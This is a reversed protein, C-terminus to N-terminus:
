SVIGRRGIGQNTNNSCALWLGTPTPSSAARTGLTASYPLGPSSSPDGEPFIDLSWPGGSPPRIQEADPDIFM